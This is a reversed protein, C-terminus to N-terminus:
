GQTSQEAPQPQHQRRVQKKNEIRTRAKARHPETADVVKVWVDDMKLLTKEWKGRVHRRLAPSNALRHSFAAAFAVGIALFVSLVLTVVVATM